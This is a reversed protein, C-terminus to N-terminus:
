KQYGLMNRRRLEDIVASRIDEHLCNLIHGIEDDMVYEWNEDAMMADVVADVVKTLGDEYITIDKM